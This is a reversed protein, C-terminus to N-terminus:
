SPIEKRMEIARESNLFLVPTFHLEVGDEASKADIRIVCLGDPSDSLVPQLLHRLAESEAQSPTNLHRTFNSFDRHDIGYRNLPVSQGDLDSLDTFRASSCSDEDLKVLVPKSWPLGGQSFMQYTSFPWFEGQHTAVLLGYIIFVTLVATRIKKLLM